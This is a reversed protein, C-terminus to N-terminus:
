KRTMLGGPITVARRRPWNPWQKPFRVNEPCGAASRWLKPLKKFRFAFLNRGPRPRLTSSRRLRGTRWNERGVLIPGPVQLTQRDTIWVALCCCCQGWWQSPPSEPGSPSVPRDAHPRNCPRYDEGNDRTQWPSGRCPPMSLAKPGPWPTSLKFVPSRIATLARKHALPYQSGTSLAPPTLLPSV